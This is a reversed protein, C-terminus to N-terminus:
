WAAIVWEEGACCRVPQFPETMWPELVMAEEDVVEDFPTTMWPQLVMNEEVVVEEFPTAMWPELVMNEENLAEEFPTVMWPEVPLKKKLDTQIFAGTKGFSTVTVLSLALATILIRTKMVKNNTAQARFGYDM